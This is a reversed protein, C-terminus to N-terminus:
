ALFLKFIYCFIPPPSECTEQIFIFLYILNVFKTYHLDVPNLLIFAHMNTIQWSGHSNSGNRVQFIYCFTYIYTYLFFLQIKLIQFLVM